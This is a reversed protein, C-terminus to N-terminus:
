QRVRYVYNSYKIKVWWVKFCLIELFKSNEKQNLLKYGRGDRDLMKMRVWYSRGEFLMETTHVTEITLDDLVHVVHSLIYSGWSHSVALIIKVKTSLVTM